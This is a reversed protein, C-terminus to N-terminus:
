EGPAGRPGLPNTFNTWIDRAEQAATPARARGTLRRAQAIARGLHWALNAALLGARGYTQYFFRTRACYYYLPLRKKAKQLAKVPGSGGRYHIVRAEPVFACGWGARRARLGYEADEFYLFYGEDMLGLAKIMDRRLLVCAFSVWEVNEPSPHLGLAVERKRLLRTIPGTSAARILESQPSHTRFCSVQPTGDPDELRPGFLGVDPCAAAATMLASFMGPRVAADSNLVLVFDSDQATIGQNHGGSFGTNTPSRVLQVQADLDHTDIWAAIQDASGDGSANDVVVTRVEIQPESHAADLVSQVCDITLQGTRYNIISVSIRASM